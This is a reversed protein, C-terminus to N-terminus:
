QNGPRRRGAAQERPEEEPVNDEPVEDLADDEPQDDRGASADQEETEEEPSEAPVSPQQIRQELGENYSGTGCGGAGVLLMLLLGAWGRLGCRGLHTTRRM